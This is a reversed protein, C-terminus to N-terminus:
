ARSGAQWCAWPRGRPHQRWLAVSLLAVALTWPDQQLHVQFYKLGQRVLALRSIGTFVKAYGSPAAANWVYYWGKQSTPCNPHLESCFAVMPHYLGRFRSEARLFNKLDTSISAMGNSRWGISIGPSGSTPFCPQPRKAEVILLDAGQAWAIVEDDVRGIDGIHVYKLGRRPPGLVEDPHVVRGDPLTVSKGAVLERRWPGPPVGLAEAKEVLFPRRPKEEFVYAFAETGKHWVPYAHVWFDGGDFILGPRVEKLRIPMPLRADRLVVKFILDDIRELAWAGAYIELFPVSEWRMFTSVLGGLGLIHDLHGHTIFVWQLRRFGLGSRLIQRQTGEGCDVLFRYPGYQVLHAPLGRRVSPASASTGLFTIVFMGAERNWLAMGELLVAM